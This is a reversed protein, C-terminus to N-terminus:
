SQYELQVSLRKLRSKSNAEPTALLAMGKAFESAGGMSPHRVAFDAPTGALKMAKEAVRGVAVVKAKPFLSRRVAVLIQVGEKVEAARPARNSYILGPKHPHWPFANWLVTREQIGLEYLVKWVVTAAPESWPRFRSTLRGRVTVRPIMGQLLLAESTFPIGSFHCGQYGPAEGVLLFEPECNLHARLRAQRDLPATTEMDMPDTNRWPNFVDPMEYAALIRMLRDIM